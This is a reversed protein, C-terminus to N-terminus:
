STGGAIRAYLADTSTWSYHRTVREVMAQCARRKAEASRLSLTFIRQSLSGTRDRPLPEALDTLHLLMVFPGGARRHRALGLSFWPVGLMLAYSASSPFPLPRFRPLPLESVSCGPVPRGPRGLAARDVELLAAWRRDSYASSDWAYGLKGLLEFGERDITYGPARFGRVPTDLEKQLRDRSHGLEYRKESLPEDM